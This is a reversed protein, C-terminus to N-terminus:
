HGRPSLAEAERFRGTNILVLGLNYIASIYDPQYELVKRYWKEADQYNGKSFSEFAWNFLENVDVNGYQDLPLEPATNNSNLLAYIEDETILDIGSSQIVAINDQSWKYIDRNPDTELRLVAQFYPLAEAYRNNFYYNAGFDFLYKPNFPEFELAKKLYPEAKEFQQNLYYTSGLWYWYEAFNPDSSKESELIEISEQHKKQLSLAQALQFKYYSLNGKDALEVAKSHFEESQQFDGKNYYIMGLLNYPVAWSPSLEIAKKADAIAKEANQNTFAVYAENYYYTPDEQLYNSEEDLNAVFDNLEKQQVMFRERAAAAETGTAATSKVRDVLTQFNLQRLKFTEYLYHEEGLLECARALYAPYLSFRSDSKYYNALQTQDAQTYKNYVEQSDDTLAAVFSYKLEDKESATLKPHNILKRYYANACNTMPELLQEKELLANFKKVEEQLEDDEEEIPADLGRSTSAVPEYTTNNINDPQPAGPTVYALVRKKDGVALPLQNRVAKSVQDGVYIEIERVTIEGNGDRDAKGALGEILFYSFVGRGDGWAKGEESFEDPHCSLLMTENSFTKVMNATVDSAGPMPGSATGSKCADTILIVDVGKLAMKNVIKQLVNLHIAASQMLNNHTTNYTLLYGLGDGTLKEKDGHGAFYIIARDGEKSEELLWSFEKVLNGFTAQENILLKADRKDSVWEQQILFNYFASADRHSYQLKPIKPDEYESIGIILARTPPALPEGSGLAEGADQAFGSGGIFLLFVSLFIYRMRHINLQLKFIAFLPYSPETKVNLLYVKKDV